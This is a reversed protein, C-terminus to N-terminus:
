RSDCPSPSPAEGAQRKRRDIPARSWNRPPRRRCSRCTGACCSPWRAPEGDAAAEAAVKSPLVLLRARVRAFAATVAQDADGRALLEGRREARTAEPLDAQARTLRAREAALDAPGRHQEARLHAVFATSAEPPWRGRTAKPIIGDKALQQLHRPTCGLLAALEPTHANRCM